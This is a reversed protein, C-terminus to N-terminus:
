INIVFVDILTSKIIARFLKVFYTFTLVIRSKLASTITFNKYFFM